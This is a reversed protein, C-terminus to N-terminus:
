DVDSLTSIYTLGGSLRILLIQKYKQLFTFSLPHHFIFMWCSGKHRRVQPTFKTPLYIPKHPRNLRFSQKRTVCPHSNQLKALDGYYGLCGLQMKEQCQNCNPNSKCNNLGFNLIGGKNPEEQTTTFYWMLRNPLCSFVHLLFHCMTKWSTQYPKWVYKIMTDVSQVDYTLFHSMSINRHSWPSKQM